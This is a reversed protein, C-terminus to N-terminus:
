IGLIKAVDKESDAIRKGSSIWDECQEFYFAADEEGKENLLKAANRFFARLLLGYPDNDRMAAKHMKGPRQNM